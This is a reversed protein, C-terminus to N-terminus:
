AIKAADIDFPRGPADIIYIQGHGKPTLLRHEVVFHEVPSDAVPVRYVAATHTEGAFCTQVTRYLSAGPLKHLMGYSPTIVRVEQSSAALALPLDRVVDGVGGVKGGPLAGNEAAVLWIRQM